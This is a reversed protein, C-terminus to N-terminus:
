TSSATPTAAVRGASGRPHAALGQIVLEVLSEGVQDPSLEGDARYWKPVWNVAGMLAFIALKPNCPRISGDAIGEEVLRRYRQEADDRRKIIARSQAPLLAGEELLVVPHGLRGILDSLYGVIAIRMKELGTTGEREGRDLNVLSSDMALNFSAFLLEHKNTVYRYLAPKTVGLRAAVDDMSTGHFGSRNFCQAAARVISDRKLEAGESQTPVVNGWAPVSRPRGGQAKGAKTPKAAARRVTNRQLRDQM